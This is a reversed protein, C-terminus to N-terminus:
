NNETSYMPRLDVWNICKKMDNEGSLDCSAISLCHDIQWTSGYNEFTMDGCLQHIIWRRFYEPSCGLLDITENTKKINQSIFAKNTRTRINCILKFNVDSERRKKMYQKKYNKSKERNRERYDIDYVRKLSKTKGSYEKRRIKNKDKNKTKYEENM